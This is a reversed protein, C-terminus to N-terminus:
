DLFRRGEIDFQIASFIAEKVKDSTPRVNDGVLTKLKRGKATGSIIRM